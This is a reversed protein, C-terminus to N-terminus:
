LNFNDLFIKKGFGKRRSCHFGYTEAFNNCIEDAIQLQKKLSKATKKKFCEIQLIKVIQELLFALSLDEIDKNEALFRAWVVDSIRGDM